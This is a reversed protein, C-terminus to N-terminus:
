GRVAGRRVAIVLQDVSVSLSGATPAKSDRVAALDGRVEVCNTDQGSFSAKRWRREPVTM